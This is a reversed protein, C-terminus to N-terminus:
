APRLTTAAVAAARDAPLRELVWAADLPRRRYPKGNIRVFDGTAPDM